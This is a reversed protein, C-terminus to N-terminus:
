AAGGLGRLMGSTVATPLLGALFGGARFLETAREENGDLGTLLEVGVFLALIVFAAQETPLFPGLPTGAAAAAVKEEVFGQWSAFIGALDDRLEPDSSTAGLLAVMAGIHGLAVDEDHLAQWTEILGAISDVEATAERYRALRADNSRALAAVLLQRMGGFHYNILAPNAGAAGAIGRATTGAYGHQALSRLAADLLLAKTEEPDAAGGRARNSPTRENM